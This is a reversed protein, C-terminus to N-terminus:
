SPGFTCAASRPTVTSRGRPGTTSSCTASASSSRPCADPAVATDEIFTVPKRDGPLGLLLPVAANRLSWLPDRLAPEVAPLTTVLGPMGQLRQNLRTVRDEVEALEAGSFEVMFLAAARSSLPAAANRLSLNDHALELLLHDLLEVASPGSELCVALADMAAALSDFQPVLLGVARPRPVLRLEAETVVALTGEGGIVLQHLGARDAREGNTPHTSDESGVVFASQHTGFVGGVRRDNPLPSGLFARAIVDLNYGSVRRLIRPFRRAIEPAATEVASRVGRYISGLLSHDERQRWEATTLPGLVARSGDSLVVNLRRVHDITKGYVISHSGASNNGIMGGLNARSATAVNPGFMLGHPALARNLQDLVVGPQVHATMGAPDIALVQHLYKSCDIVLGPGISQGSLSTGGGRPVIPVHMQLAVQVAAALADTTHPLVVGLPEIQYISADTSYLKRAAEDFRVEGDVHRRLHEHLASRKQDIFDLM